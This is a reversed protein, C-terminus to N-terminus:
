SVASVYVMEGFQSGLAHRAQLDTTQVQINGAGADSKAINLLVYSMPQIIATVFPEGAVAPVIEVDRIDNAAILTASMNGSSPRLSVTVTAGTQNLVLFDTDGSAPIVGNINTNADPRGMSNLTINPM